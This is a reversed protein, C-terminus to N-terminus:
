NTNAGERNIIEEALQRFIRASRSNPASKLIPQKLNATQGLLVSRPITANFVYEPFEKRAQKAVNRSLRSRWTYMTLLINIKKNKLNRFSKIFSILRKASILALEECQVPIIIEDSAILASATLFNFDAPTDIIIFNYDDKVRKLAEDLRKEMHRVGKLKAVAEDLKPFSAMIDFSLYATSKVAMKPKIKKLLVNGIFNASPKIGLCFTADGQPSADVLLVRKGLASLLMSLNICVNTKGVGGKLNAIAITRTM